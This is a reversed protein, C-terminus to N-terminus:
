SSKKYISMSHDMIIEILPLLEPFVKKAFNWANDEIKIALQHKEYNSKAVQKRKALQELDKDESHGIEHALIIKFYDVMREDTGLVRICQLKIEELYLTIAGSKLSFKGGINRNGPFHEEITVTTTLSLMQLISKVLNNYYEKSHALKM